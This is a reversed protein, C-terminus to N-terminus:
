DISNIAFNHHWKAGLGRADALARISYALLEVYQEWRDRQFAQPIPVSFEDFVENTLDVASEWDIDLDRAKTTINKKLMVMTHPPYKSQGDTEAFIPKKRSQDVKKEILEQFLNM